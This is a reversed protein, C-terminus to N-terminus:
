VYEAFKNKFKQFIFLGLFFSFISAFIALLLTLAQPVQHYIIIERSINIFHYMPNFYNIMQLLISRPLVYFIPTLFWLLRCFVAWINSLDIIYVGAAALIFSFGLVFLVFFFFIPLYFLVYLINVKFYVMFAMFVAMELLHSFVFQFVSSMVLSEQIIKMSKIVGGSSSIAHTALSTTSLFFNFMILGLLLYLPYYKIPHVNIEGGVLL